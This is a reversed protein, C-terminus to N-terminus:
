MQANLLSGIKYRIEGESANITAAEVLGSVRRLEDFDAEYGITYIPVRLGKVVAEMDAFGHGANTEGDSLVFLVPKVNADAQKAKVLLSLAVAIGDYMATGGGSVMDEAAAIFAAKHNLNFKRVPLVVRVRDDFYVLGISNGAAIFDAGEILAERVGQMRAGAMSGSVDCLFVAAIARGADKRTKWIEQARILTDGSPVAYPQDPRLSPNFGYEQGLTRFKPQEAFAAFKELTEKEEASVDGVAYLPNDHAFGFPVFQYGSQLETTKVFTQYEMVFADLSGDNRVSERLQLTTEGVFPVGRQFAEFASAVEPSLMRDEKGEAFTALVSVLFNLGTSSAFPNTYGMAMEGQLVSDILSKVDVAGRASKLKDAVDDKMVVGALNVVTKERVPTMAIGHAEAMRIWLHNSPSFAQPLYKRAAIFDYATGSAISRIKVRATKGGSLRVDATNFDRAVDAMWGDTGKGSKETSVFIEVVVDNFGSRPDVAIPFQAIPPLSDKIDAKQGLSVNAKRQVLEESWDVDQVVDDLRGAAEDYSLDGGFSLHFGGQRQILMVAVVAGVVISVLIALARFRSRGPRQQVVSRRNDRM